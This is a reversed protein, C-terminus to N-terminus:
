FETESKTKFLDPRMFLRPKMRLKKKFNWIQDWLFHRLRSSIKDQLFDSVQDQLIKNEFFHQITSFHFILTCFIVNDFIYKQLPGNSHVHHFQLIQVLRQTAVANRHPSCEASTMNEGWAKIGLSFKEQKIVFMMIPDKVSIKEFVDSSAWFTMEQIFQLIKLLREFLRIASKHLKLHGSYWNGGYM